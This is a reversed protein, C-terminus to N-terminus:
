ESIMSQMENFYDKMTPYMNKFVDFMRNYMNIYKKNPEFVKKTKIVTKADEFDRYIRLGVMVCYAAGVAGAHASNEPIIVPIGLINFLTSMWKDSSTAGGVVRIENLTNGTQEGYMEIKWRVSYCIGERIANLLHRRDHMNTINFLVIRAENSLPPLEGYLWPTAIM